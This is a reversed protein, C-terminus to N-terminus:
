LSIWDWYIILYNYIFRGSLWHFFINFVVLFLINFFYLLQGCDGQDKVATVVGKKRWDLSSPADCSQLSRRWSSSKLNNYKGIPRKVKSSHRQRFEENSMDAFKNLGVSHGSSSNRQTNKDLVYKLNRRFNEFRKETEETQRYVKRYKKKWQQFLDIVREESLLEQLHLEDNGVISYESPLSFSLCLLPALLLFFFALQSKQTGM